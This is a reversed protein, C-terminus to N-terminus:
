DGNYDISWLTYLRDMIKGDANHDISGNKRSIGRFRLKNSKPTTANETSVTRNLDGKM